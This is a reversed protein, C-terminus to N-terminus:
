GEENRWRGGPFDRVDRGGKAGLKSTTIPADLALFIITAFADLGRFSEENDVKGFLSCLAIVQSHEKFGKALQNSNFHLSIVGKHLKLINFM